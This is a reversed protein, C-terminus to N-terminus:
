SKTEDILADVLEESSLRKGIMNEVMVAPEKGGGHSLMERRYKEGTEQRLPDAAFCGHWVKSAVARSYLYSYYKAGYGVLHGFRLHWASGPVYPISSHQKQIEELIEVTPRDLPHNGHYVQDLISYFVQTQMEYASGFKKSQCLRNIMEEPLTENTQHHRAFERLVRYDNAFYEMLISPVEAYDTSCRTGTVHQYRTRGLMSHIAHGFEHFLNEMMGHTLLPLSGSRSSPMSCALVIKPM